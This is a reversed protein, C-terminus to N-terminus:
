YLSSAKDSWVESFAPNEVIDLLKELTRHYKPDSPM